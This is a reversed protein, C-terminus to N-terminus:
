APCSAGTNDTVVGSIGAPNGAGQGATAPVALALLSLFMFLGVMPPPCGPRACKWMSM